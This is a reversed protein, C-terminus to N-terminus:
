KSAKRAAQALGIINRADAPPTNENVLQAANNWRINMAELQHRNVDETGFKLKPILEKKIDAWMAIERVRHHATRMMMTLIWNQREIELRLSDQEIDDEENDLDRNLRRIEILTKRYEYSLNILETVFVDQERVAQWYKSDPTPHKMDNLVSVKAETDTRFRQATLFSHEMDGALRILQESDDKGLLGSESILALTNPTAM